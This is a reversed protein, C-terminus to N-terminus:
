SSTRVSELRDLLRGAERGWITAVGASRAAELQRRAERVQRLWLLMLGLHFRVVPSNPNTSAVPGLRAFAQSPDDKDFRVVAAATVAELSTPDLALARDYAAKASVPRGLRQLVAGYLLWDRPAGDEARRELEALQEAPPLKAVDADQRGGEPVFFPRGPPMEPHLLDEARLASPSDPDRREAERWQARAAGADGTVYLALGLHLRAVGSRPHEEVIRELRGTTGHPWAAVAAGVAAPVSAPDRALLREFRALAAQHDGRDYAQEAARLATADPGDSLAVGLELPPAPGEPEQEGRASVLAVSAAGAAAAVAALAVLLRTRKRPSVTKSPLPPGRRM